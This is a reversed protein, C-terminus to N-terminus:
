FHVTSVSRESLKDAARINAPSATSVRYLMFAVLTFIFIVLAWLLSKKVRLRKKEVPAQYISKVAQDLYATVEPPEDKVTKRTIQCGAIPPQSGTIYTLGGTINDSGKMTRASRVLSSIKNQLTGHFACLVGKILEDNLANHLGDSCILYLDEDQVTEILLDIKLTASMGLARTLVNKKQFKKIEEEEIEKDEILENLWSHDRTLCTLQGARLRYARSDGVHAIIINGEHFAAASVTTGMGLGLQNQSALHLIRRNALRIGAILKRAILPYEEDVDQCAQNLDFFRNQVVLNRLTDSATMVDRVTEAAMQSALAGKQHGGMGDCVVVFKKPKSYFYFDENEDRSTGIDSDAAIVIKEEVQTETIM